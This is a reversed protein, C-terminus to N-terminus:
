ETLLLYLVTFLLNQVHDLMRKTAKGALNPTHQNVPVAVGPQVIFLYCIAGKRFHIMNRRTAFEEPFGGWVVMLFNSIPM